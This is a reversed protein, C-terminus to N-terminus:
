NMVVGVDTDDYIDMITNYIDEEMMNYSELTIEQNKEEKNFYKKQQVVVYMNYAEKLNNRKINVWDVLSYMKKRIFRRERSKKVGQAYLDDEFDTVRLYELILPVNLKLIRGNTLRLSEDKVHYECEDVDKVFGMDRLKRIAQKVAYISINADYKKNLWNMIGTNSIFLIGKTRFIYILLHIVKNWVEINPNAYFARAGNMMYYPHVKVNPFKNSKKYTKKLAAQM